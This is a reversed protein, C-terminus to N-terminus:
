CRSSPTGATDAPRAARRVGRARRRARGAGGPPRRRQAHLSQAPSGSSWMKAHKDFKISFHYSPILDICGHEGLPRTFCRCPGSGMRGSAAEGAVAPHSSRKSTMTARSRPRLLGGPEWRLLSGGRVLWPAADACCLRVTPCVRWAAAITASDAAHGPRDARRAAPRRDRRSRGPWSAARRWIEGFRNYDERRCLACPRHGAAFATAEDLFFLETFRGPQMM